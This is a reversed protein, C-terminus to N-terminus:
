AGQSPRREISIMVPVVGHLHYFGRLRIMLVYSRVLNCVGSLSTFKASMEQSLNKALAVVDKAENGHKTNNNSYKLTRVM